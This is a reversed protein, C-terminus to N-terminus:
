YPCPLEKRQSFTHCDPIDPLAHSDIELFLTPRFPHFDHYIAEISLLADTQRRSLGSFVRDLILLDPAHLINRVLGATWREIPDLQEPKTSAIARIRDPSLGCLQLALQLQDEWDETPTDASGVTYGLAVSLNEAISMGALLGGDAPLVGIGPTQELARLVEMANEADVVTMRYRGGQDLPLSLCVENESLIILRRNEIWVSAAM